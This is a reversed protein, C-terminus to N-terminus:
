GPQRSPSPCERLLVGIKFSHFFSLSFSLVCVYIDERKRERERKMEREREREREREEVWGFRLWGAVFCGALGGWWCLELFEEGWAFDALDEAQAVQVGGGDVREQAADRGVQLEDFAVEVDREAGGGGGGGRGVALLLLGAVGGGAEGDGGREAFDDRVATQADAERVAVADDGWAVGIGKQDGRPLHVDVHQAPAARALEFRVLHLALEEDVRAAGGAGVAPHVLRQPSSLLVVRVRRAEHEHVHLAIHQHQIHILELSIGLPILTNTNLLDAEPLASSPTLTPSKM